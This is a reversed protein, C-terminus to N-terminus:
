VGILASIEDDTLGLDKLKKKGSDKNEQQKKVQELIKKNEEEDKELQSIDESTLKVLTDNVMKFKNAM